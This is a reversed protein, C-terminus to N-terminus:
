SISCKGPHPTLLFIRDTVNQYYYQSYDVKSKTPYYILESSGGDCYGNRKPDYENIYIKQTVTKINSLEEQTFAHLFGAGSNYPNYGNLVASATPPCHSYAVTEDSSNLWQRLNSDSWCNSGYQERVNTVWDDKHYAPSKGSADFAKLCLIKDSLMLPRNEDIDVCRWVIPEGLYTGLTLYDGLRIVNKKVLTISGIDTIQNAYVNASRTVSEFGDKSIQLSIRGSPSSLTFDGNADTLAPISANEVQIMAESIPTGDEAQIHGTITGINEFTYKVAEAANLMPYQRPQGDIIDDSHGSM